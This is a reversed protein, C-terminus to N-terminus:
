ISIKILRVEHIEMIHFSFRCLLNTIYYMYTSPMESNYFSLKYTKCYIAM